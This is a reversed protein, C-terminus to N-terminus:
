ICDQAFDSMVQIKVVEGCNRCPMTPAPLGVMCMQAVTPHGGDDCKDTVHCSVFHNIVDQPTGMAEEQRLKPRKEWPGCAFAAFAATLLISGMPGLVQRGGSWVRVSGIFGPWILDLISALAVAGCLGTPIWWIWRYGAKSPSTNFLKERKIGMAKMVVKVSLANVVDM